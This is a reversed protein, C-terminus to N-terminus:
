LWQFSHCIWYHFPCGVPKIIKVIVFLYGPPKVPLSLWILPRPELRWWLLSFLFGAQPSLKTRSKDAVFPIIMAKQLRITEMLSESTATKPQLLYLRINRLASYAQTGQGYLIGMSNPINRVGPVDYSNNSENNSRDINCSPSYFQHCDKETPSNHKVRYIPISPHSHSWLM